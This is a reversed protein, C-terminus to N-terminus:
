KEVYDSLEDLCNDHRLILKHISATYWVTDQNTFFETIVSQLDEEM